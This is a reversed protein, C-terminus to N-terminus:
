RSERYQKLALLGAGDSPGLLSVYAAFRAMRQVWQEPSEDGGMAAPSDKGPAMMRHCRWFGDAIAEYLEAHMRATTVAGDDTM